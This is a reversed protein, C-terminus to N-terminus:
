SWLWDQETSCAPVRTLFLGLTRLPVRAVAKWLVAATNFTCLEWWQCVSGPAQFVPEKHLWCPANLVGNNIHHLSLCCILFKFITQSRLMETFFMMFPFVLFYSLQLFLIKDEVLLLSTAWFQWPGVSNEFGGMVASQLNFLASSPTLLLCM